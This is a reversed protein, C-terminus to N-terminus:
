GGDMLDKGLWLGVYGSMGLLSGYLFGGGM